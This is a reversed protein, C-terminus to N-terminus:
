EKGRDKEERQHRIDDYTKVILRHWEEREAKWADAFEQGYMKKRDFHAAQRYKNLDVESVGRTRILRVAEAGYLCGDPVLQGAAIRAAMILDSDFAM